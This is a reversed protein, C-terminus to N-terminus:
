GRDGPWLLSELPSPSEDELINRLYATHFSEGATETWFGLEEELLVRDVPEGAFYAVNVEAFCRALRERDEASLGAFEGSEDIQRYFQRYFCNRAYEDFDLLTEDTLGSSRAWAAVDVSCAQYFLSSGDYTLRGFRCPPVSLAGTLVEPFAAEALHQIHMHGSFHAIVGYKTLMQELESANNVLYGFTFLSNHELVNQHSVTIVRESHREATKLQKELWSLSEKPLSNLAASNTDLLIIRLGECPTVAYSGSAEDLSIAESYGFDGYLERFEDATTNRVYSVGEGEFRAANASNLDHNGPLVLVQVGSEEIRRLKDALDAHSQYAGSFSLDGSLILLDPAEDIVQSVFAETIAEIELMQKGDGRSVVSQFFPGNDTLQPSLYHLDSAIVIRLPDASLDRVPQGSVGTCAAGSVLMLMALLLAALKAHRM